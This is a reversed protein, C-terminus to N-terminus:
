KTHLPCYICHFSTETGEGLNSFPSVTDQFNQKFEYERPHIPGSKLRNQLINWIPNHCLFSFNSLYTHIETIRWTAETMSTIITITKTTIIM